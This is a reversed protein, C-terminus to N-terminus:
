NDKMDDTASNCDEDFPELLCVHCMSFQSVTESAGEIMTLIFSVISPIFFIIVAAIFRKIMLAGFAKLDKEEGSVVIKFIDIIALIILILPVIIKVAYIAYGLLQFVILANTECLEFADLDTSAESEYFDYSEEESEIDSGFYISSLKNDSYYSSCFDEDFSMCYYPISNTSYGSSDVSQSGDYSFYAYISSTSGTKLSGVVNDDFKIFKNLESTSLGSKNLVQSGNYYSKIAWDDSDEYYYIDIYSFDSLKFYSRMANGQNESSSSSSNSGSSSTAILSTYGSCDSSSNSFCFFTSDSNGSSINSAHYYAYNPCLPDSIMDDLTDNNYSLSEFTINSVSPFSNTNYEISSTTDKYVFEWEYGTYTLILSQHPSTSTDSAYNCTLTTADVSKFSLLVSIFLIIYSIKKM